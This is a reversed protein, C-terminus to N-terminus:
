HNSGNRKGELTLLSAAIYLALRSPAPVVPLTALGYNATM